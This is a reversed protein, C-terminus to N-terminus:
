FANITKNENKHTEKHRKIEKRITQNVGENKLLINKLRCAKLPKASKKRYKIDLEFCQSRLTHM